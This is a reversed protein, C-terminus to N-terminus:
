TVFLLALLAIGLCVRDKRLRWNPIKKGSWTRRTGDQYYFLSTLKGWFDWGEEERMRRENAENLVDERLSRVNQALERLDNPGHEGHKNAKIVFDKNRFWTSGTSFDRLPRERQNQEPSQEGTREPNTRRRVSERSGPSQSGGTVQEEKIERNVREEKEEREKEEQERREREKKKARSELRRSRSTRRTDEKGFM